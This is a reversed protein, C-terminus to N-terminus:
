NSEAANQLKWCVVREYRKNSKNIFMEYKPPIINWKLKSPFVTYKKNEHQIKCHQYFGKNNRIVVKYIQRIKKM